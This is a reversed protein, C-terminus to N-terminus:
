PQANRIIRLIAGRWASHKGTSALFSEHWLGTFTGRVRKVADIVRSADRVADDPSLKLKERLTNDMVAFPHITLSTAEDQELDYWIYPTCTGARFGLRDHCGMSHEERFGLAIATRFTEPTSFRLFHQRSQTITEGIVRALRDREYQTLGDQVSSRYSPHLGIEMRSKLARLYSSYRADEVPVAHDNATRDAALVFAIIRSACTDFAQLVEEDLLFPDPRSGGLVAIRESVAQWDGRAADRVWAGASRWAERGLYKFGNDLDITAVQAYSRNPEAVRPDISRWREVLLLAWEDVIPRHLYGHKAAHMASTLPRGHEDQPLARWEEVRALQFFAAAFPDFPLDSGATPYLLLLEGRQQVEPDPIAKTASAWDGAPRIHFAGPVTADAYALCPMASPSLESANTVWRITFGLLKGILQDAAYRARPSPSEIWIAVEQVPPVSALYSRTRLGPEPSCNRSANRPTGM